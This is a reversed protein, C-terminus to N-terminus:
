GSYVRLSPWLIFSDKTFVGSSGYPPFTYRFSCNISVKIPVVRDGPEVTTVSKGVATVLGVGETGGVLPEANPRFATASSEGAVAALDVPDVGAALWKVAINGAAPTPSLDELNESSLRKSSGNQSSFTFAMSSLQIRTERVWRWTPGRIGHIRSLM